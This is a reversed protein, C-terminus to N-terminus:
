RVTGAPCYREGDSPGRLFGHAEEVPSNRWVREVLGCAAASILSNRDCAIGRERM